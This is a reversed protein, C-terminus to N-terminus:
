LQGASKLLKGTDFAHLLFVLRKPWMHQLRDEDTQLWGTSDVFRLICTQKTFQICGMCLGHAVCVHTDGNGGITM